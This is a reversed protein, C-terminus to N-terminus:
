QVVSNYLSQLTNYQEVMDQTVQNTTSLSEIMSQSNKYVVRMKALRADNNGILSNMATQAQESLTLLQTQFEAVTPLM